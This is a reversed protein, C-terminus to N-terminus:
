NPSLNVLNKLIMEIRFWGFSDISVLGLWFIFWISFFFWHKEINEIRLHNSFLYLGFGWWDEEQNCKLVSPFFSLFFVRVGILLCISHLKKERKQGIWVRISGWIVMFSLFPFSFVLPFSFLCVKKFDGRESVRSVSRICCIVRNWTRIRLSIQSSLLLSISLKHIEQNREKSEKHTTNTDRHHHCLLITTPGVCLSSTPTPGGKLYKPRWDGGLGVVGRSFRVRARSYM